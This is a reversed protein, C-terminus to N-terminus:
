FIKEKIIIIGAAIGVIGAILPINSKVAGLAAHKAADAQKEMQKTTADLTGFLQFDVDTSDQTPENTLNVPVGALEFRRIVDPLTGKIFDGSQETYAILEKWIDETPYANAPIAVGLGRDVLEASIRFRDTAWKAALTQWDNTLDPDIKGKSSPNQYAAQVQKFRYDTVALLDRTESLTHKGLITM